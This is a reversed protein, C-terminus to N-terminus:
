KAGEGHTQGSKTDRVYLYLPWGNYTAQLKGDRRRATGLLKPHVGTRKDAVARAGNRVVLPRWLKACRGYCTIKPQKGRSGQRDKAFVYLSFGHSSALVEGRGTNRTTVTTDAVAIGALALAVLLALPFAARDVVTRRM